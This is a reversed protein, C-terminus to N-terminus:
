ERGRYCVCVDCVCGYACVCVNERVERDIRMKLIERRERGIEERERRVRKKEERETLM